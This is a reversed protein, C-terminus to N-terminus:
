VGNDGCDSDDECEDKYQCRDGYYMRDCACEGTRANFLGKGGCKESSAVVGPAVIDVDACSWFRYRGGWELAQRMLRVTCGACELDRPLRVMHSQATTDEAIWEADDEAGTDSSLSRVFNYDEDWLEIKYGGQHPYGLHWTM